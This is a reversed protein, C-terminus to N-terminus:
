PLAFNETKGANRQELYAQYTESFRIREQIVKEFSDTLGLILEAIERVAHDGGERGSIYDCYNGNIAYGAFLPSAKRQIMFRLGCKEALPLDPIDDFIYAVEEPKMDWNKVIHNLAINKDLAKQYVANFHERQALELAAPNAQGTIVAMVPMERNHQLWGSFRLMNTGMSDAESYSGPIGLGKKGKNFVGDWDFVFAKIGPLKKIISEPPTIFRGGAAEFINTIQKM